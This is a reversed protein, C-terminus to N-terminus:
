YEIASLWPLMDCPLMDYIDCTYNYCLNCLIICMASTYSMLIRVQVKLIKMIKSGREGGQDRYSVKYM